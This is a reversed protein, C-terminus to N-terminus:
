LTEQDMIAAEDAVNRQVSEMIRQTEAQEIIAINPEFIEYEAIGLTGNLMKAVRKGSVHPMVQKWLNTNSVQVLNQVTQAEQAFHRAGIPRLRGNAVIDDKNITIFQAVGSEEDVVRLTDHIDFNRRASELMANLLKEMMKVEFYTIKEQFIRGAANQLQQVEFATKEGPTRIGMAERPAGAYEEMKAELLAIQNDAMLAQTNPSLMDVDGDGSMYIQEMPGWNFDEVDGKVKLPPFAILDFVDAKLNELHDIRYQMGILNDLPGMAYLNDQRIRWGCHYIPASAFWSPEEIDEVVYRRDAITVKHNRVINGTIPDHYDGYFTLVEVMGSAMYQDYSGFGDMSVGELKRWDDASYGATNKRFNDRKILVEAWAANEPSDTALVKLEGESFISRLIKPASEFSPATPNFVIDLPSIRRAVPGVYDAITKGTLQDVTKHSVYDVTSFCNGYDIYDLLLQSMVDRFDSERVKNAMYHQIVDRKKEDDAERGIWRLWDENPFLASIYNSHLNDRIQCLKPLTTKNKWPLSANTTTSTDTAFIYNRLETKSDLWPNRQTNWDVWQNAIQEALVETDDKITQKLELVKSM